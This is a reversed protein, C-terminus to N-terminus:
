NKLVKPDPKELFFFFFLLMSINILRMILLYQIHHDEVCIKGSILLETGSDNPELGIM